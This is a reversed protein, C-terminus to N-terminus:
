GMAPSSAVMAAPGWQQWWVAEMRVLLDAGTPQPVPLELEELAEVGGFHHQGFARMRAPLAAPLVLGRM